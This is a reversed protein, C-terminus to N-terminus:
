YRARANIKSSLVLESLLEFLDGIERVRDVGTKKFDGNQALRPRNRQSHTFHVLDARGLVLLFGHLALELVQLIGRTWGAVLLQLNTINATGVQGTQIVIASQGIVEESFHVHSVRFHALVTLLEGTFQLTASRWHTM